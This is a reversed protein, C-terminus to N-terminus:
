SKSGTRVITNKQKRSFYFLLFIGTSIVLRVIHHLINNGGIYFGNVYACIHIVVLPIIVVWKRNIFLKLNAIIVFISSVGMLVSVWLPVLNNNIAIVSAAITVGGYAVSVIWRIIVVVMNDGKRRIHIYIM